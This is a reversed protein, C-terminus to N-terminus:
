SQPVSVKRVALFRCPAGWENDWWRLNLRRGSAGGVLALVRRYGGVVAVSGLGIVPRKRQEDPFQAGFALTHETEAPMWPNETDLEEIGTVVNESSISCNPHYYRGEFHVIGSGRIQFCKAINDNVWDYHGAAIMAEISRDYDITFRFVQGDHIRQLEDMIQDYSLSKGLRAAIANVRRYYRGLQDDTVGSYLTM